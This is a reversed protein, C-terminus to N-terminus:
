KAKTRLQMYQMLYRLGDNTLEQLYTKNDITVKAFRCNPNTLAYDITMMIDGEHSRFVAAGEYNGYNCEPKKVVSTSDIFNYFSRIAKQGKTESSLAMDNLFFAFEIGACQPLVEQLKPHLDRAITPETAVTSATQTANGETSGNETSGSKCAGVFCSLLAIYLFYKM